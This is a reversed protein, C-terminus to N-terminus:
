NENEPLNESDVPPPAPPRYLSRGLVRHYSTFEGRGGDSELHQAMMKLKADLDDLYYVLLAEPTKPPVPSGFELSGHHSLIIHELQLLLEPDPFNMERAAERVMEWGLVIHGLLQGSVTLDPAPPAALEKVKGLDHLIAGALVLDAKLHPYVALSQLAHRAVYWTHELLGGLYPHHYSRAAPCVLFKEQYATLLNLTLTKLPDKLQSNVLDMLEQWLQERDHPTTPILLDVQCGPDRGLQRLAEVTNLYSVILQREQQFSTVQGTVAVVDGPNFPGPCRDIVEEWVRAKIVGTRDGLLLSWFPKGDKTSRVELQRLIFCQKVQDGEKLDVIFQHAVVQGGSKQVDYGPSLTLTLSKGPTSGPKVIFSLYNDKIL